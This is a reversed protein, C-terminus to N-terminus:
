SFNDFLHLPSFLVVEAELILHLLFRFYFFISFSSLYFYWLITRFYLVLCQQDAEFFTVEISVVTKLVKEILSDIVLLCSIHFIIHIMYSTSGSEPTM